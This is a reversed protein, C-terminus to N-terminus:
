RYTRIHECICVIHEYSVESYQEDKKKKIIERECLVYISFHSFAHTGELKSHLLRKGEMNRM